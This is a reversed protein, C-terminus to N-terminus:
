EMNTSRCLLRLILCPLLMDCADSDASSQPFACAVCKHLVDHGVRCVAPWGRWSALGVRCLALWGALWARVERRARELELMLRPHSDKLYCQLTNYIRPADRNHRRQLETVTHDIAPQFYSHEADVLLRV